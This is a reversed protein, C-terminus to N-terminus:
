SERKTLSHTQVLELREPSTPRRSANSLLRRSCVESKWSCCVREAGRIPDTCVCRGEVPSGSPAPSALTIGFADRCRVASTVEQATFAHLSPFRNCASVDSHSVIDSSVISEQSLRIPVFDRAFRHMIKCLQGKRIEVVFPDPWFWASITQVQSDDRAFRHMM